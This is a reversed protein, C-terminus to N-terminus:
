DNLYYLFFFLFIWIVDVFHWYWCSIEFGTFNMKTASTLNISFILTSFLFITGIIVHIGHFGTLIFFVTGYGGDRIRYFSSSYEEFQFFTFTIGLVITLFLLINSKLNKGLNLYYHRLTVLVGSILLILTNLFPVNIAEFPIIGLSPWEWGIELVPSLFFHFYSWFFSFFFFVESRIFIIIGIKLGEQLNSSNFGKLSFEWVYNLWWLFSILARFILSYLLRLSLNFKFFIGLSFLINFAGIRRILAWPSPILLYYYNSKTIM